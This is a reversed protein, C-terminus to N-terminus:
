SSPLRKGLQNDPADRLGYPSAVVKIFARERIDDVTHTYQAEIVLGALAIMKM